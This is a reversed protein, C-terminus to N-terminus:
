FLIIQVVDKKRVKMTIKQGMSISRVTANKENYAGQNRLYKLTIRIDPLINYTIGNVEIMYHSDVMVPTRTVEGDIWVARNDAFVLSASSLMGFVIFIIIVTKKLQM